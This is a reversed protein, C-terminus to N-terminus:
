EKDIALYRNPKKSHNFFRYDNRNTISLIRVLAAAVPPQLAPKGFYLTYKLACNACGKHTAKCSLIYTNAHM